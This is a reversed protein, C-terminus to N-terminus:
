QLSKYPESQSQSKLFYSGVLIFKDDSIKHPKSWHTRTKNSKNQVYKLNVGVLNPYHVPNHLLILVSRNKGFVCKSEVHMLSQENM